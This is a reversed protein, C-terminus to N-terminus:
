MVPSFDNFMQPYRRCKETVLLNTTAMAPCSERNSLRPIFKFGKSSAPLMVHQMAVAEGTGIKFKEPSTLLPVSPV